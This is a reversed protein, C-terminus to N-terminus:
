RQIISLVETKTLQRYQGPQLDTDLKIDGIAIRHLGIVPNQFRGFMRKIQHYKGENLEVMAQIPSLIELKAPATTIGEYEFWMGEAFVKIYDEDIPNALTVLYRKTVKNDPSMLAQSWKADNTILLLGTSNLDLRGAIHLLDKDIGVLLDVATQHQKDMTASVVGQPKHLMWYVAQRQQLVQGQCVIFSFEDIQEDPSMVLQGDIMIEGQVIMNRVSKKPIQQHKAIFTDIRGRKSAM